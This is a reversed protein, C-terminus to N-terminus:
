QIVYSLSLFIPSSLSPIFINYLLKSYTFVQERDKQDIDFGDAKVKYHAYFTIIKDIAIGFSEEDNYEFSEGTEYAYLLENICGVTKSLLLVCGYYLAEEVVIGWAENKSPLVLVDHQQYYEFLADNEIFGKFEINDNAISRLFQYQPGDGIVTLPLGNENFQRILFDINKIEILRGVYLFRLIGAVKEKSSKVERKNIIGVGKSILVRQRFKMKRLMESHIVGSAVAASFRKLLLIKVLFKWGKL